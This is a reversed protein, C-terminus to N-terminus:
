NLDVGFESSGAVDRRNKRWLRYNTHTYEYGDPNVVPVVSLEYRTLLEWGASSNLGEQVMMDTIYMATPPSLWERAHIGGQILVGAPQIVTYPNRLRYVWIPRNQLSTGIQERTIITPYQARWAEYQAIIESYRLYETRYNSGDTTRVYPGVPDGIKGVVEYRLGLKRLGADNPAAVDTRPGIDESLLTLDSDGLVRAAEENPVYVRYAFWDASLAFSAIAFAVVTLLLRKM